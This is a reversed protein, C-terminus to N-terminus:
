IVLFTYTKRKLAANAVIKIWFIIHKPFRYIAKFNHFLPLYKVNFLRDYWWKLVCIVMSKSHDQLGKIQDRKRRICSVKISKYNVFM